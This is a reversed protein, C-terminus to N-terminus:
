SRLIWAEAFMCLQCANAEIDQRTDVHSLARKELLARLHLYQLPVELRPVDWVFFFYGAHLAKEPGWFICFTESHSAVVVPHVSMKGSACGRYVRKVPDRQLHSASKSIDHKVLVKCGYAYWIRMCFTHKREAGLAPEQFDFSADLPIMSGKHRTISAVSPEM